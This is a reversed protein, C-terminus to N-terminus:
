CDWTWGVISGIGVLVNNGIRFKIRCFNLGSRLQMMLEVNIMLCYITYDFSFYLLYWCVIIQFILPSNVHKTEGGCGNIMKIKLLLSVLKNMMPCSLTSNIYDFPKIPYCDQVNVSRPQISRYSVPFQQFSFM